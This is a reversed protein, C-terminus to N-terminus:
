VCNSPKGLILKQGLVLVKPLYYSNEGETTIGKHFLCLFMTTFINRRANKDSVMELKFRFSHLIIVWPIDLWNDHLVLDCGDLSSKAKCFELTPSSSRQFIKYWTALEDQNDRCKLWAWNALCCDHEKMEIQIFRQLAKMSGKNAITYKPKSTDKYM